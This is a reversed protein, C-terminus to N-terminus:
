IGLDLTWVAITEDFKILIVIYQHMRNIHSRWSYGERLWTTFPSCQSKCDCIKSEHRTLLVVYQNISTVHKSIILRGTVQLVGILFLQTCLSYSCKWFYTISLDRSGLVWYNHWLDPSPYIGNKMPQILCHVKVVALGCLKCATVQSRTQAHELPWPM